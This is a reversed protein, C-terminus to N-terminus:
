GKIESSPYGLKEFIINVQRSTYFHGNKQGISEEFPKLWRQLTLWSVGYLRSLEKHTYPRIINKHQTNM